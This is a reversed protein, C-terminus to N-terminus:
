APGRRRRRRRGRRRRRAPRRRRGRAPDAAAGGRRAAAHARPHSPRRRRRRRRRRRTPLRAAARRARQGAAGRPTGERQRRGHVRHTPVPHGGVRVHLAALLRVPRARGSLLLLVRDPPFLRDLPPRRRGPGGAPGRLGARAPVAPDRARRLPRRAHVVVRADGADRVRCVPALGPQPHQAQPGARRGHGAGRGRLRLRAGHAPLLVPAPLLGLHHGHAGPELGPLYAAHCRWLLPPWLRGQVGADAVAAAALVPERARGDVGAGHLRLLVHAAGHRARPAVGGLVRRRRRRGGGGAASRRRRAPRACFHPQRPHVGAAGPVHGGRGAAREAPVAQLRRADVEGPVAAAAADGGVVGADADRGADGADARRRRAAARGLLERRAAAAAVAADGARM